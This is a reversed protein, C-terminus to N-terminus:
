KEDKIIYAADQDSYDAYHEDEEKKAQREDEIVKEAFSPFPEEFGDDWMGEEKITAVFNSVTMNQFREDELLQKLYEYTM